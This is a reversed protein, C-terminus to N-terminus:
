KRHQKSRCITEERSYMKTGLAGKANIRRCELLIGPGNLTKSLHTKNIPSQVNSGADLSDLTDGAFSGELIASFHHGTSERQHHHHHHHHHQHQQELQNQLQHKQQLQHSPPSSLTSPHMLTQTPSRMASFATAPRLRPPQLMVPANMLAAVPVRSKERDRHLDISTQSQESSTWIRSNM